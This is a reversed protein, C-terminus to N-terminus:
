KKIIKKTTIKKNDNINLLYIGKPLNKLDIKFDKDSSSLFKHTKQELLKGEMSYIKLGFIDTEMKDFHLNISEDFPNPSLSITNNQAEEILFSDSSLNNNSIIKLVFKNMRFSGISTTNFISALDYNIEGGTLIIGLSEVNVDGKGSSFKVTATSSSGGFTIRKTTDKRSVIVANETGTIESVGVKVLQLQVDNPLFSLDFGLNFGEGPDIGAGAGGRVGLEGTSARDMGAPTLLAGYNVGQILNTTGM